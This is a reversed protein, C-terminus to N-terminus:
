GGSRSPPRRPRSRQRCEAVGANKVRAIPEGTAPQREGAGEGSPNSIWGDAYAGSDVEAIGLDKLFDMM